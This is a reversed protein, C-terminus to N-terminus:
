FQVARDVRILDHLLGATARLTRELRALLKRGWGGLREAERCHQEGAGVLHDLLPELHQV